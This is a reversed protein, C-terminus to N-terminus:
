TRINLRDLMEIFDICEVNQEECILPIRYNSKKSPRQNQRKEYTVVTKNMEKAYSILNIDKQSAGNSVESIEYTQELHLSLVDIENNWPTETFSNDLLWMRLPYKDRIDSSSLKKDASPIPDIEDFIPKILIIDDKANILEVWLPGFIRIPYHVNWVTLFINADTCFQGM